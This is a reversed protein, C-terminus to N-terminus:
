GASSSRETVQRAVSTVRAERDARLAVLRARTEAVFREDDITALNIEVNAAAAELGAGALLAAVIVDSGVNLNTIPAAQACLDLVATCDTAAELPERAAARTASQIQERRGSKQDDSARPLRYAAMVADYAAADAQVAATLRRRLEEAQELIGRVEVEAAAYKDRGLTLYCVMSVLSAALAGTLAAAAGGGPTPDGSALRELFQEVSLATLPRDAVAREM